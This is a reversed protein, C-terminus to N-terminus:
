LRGAAALDQEAEKRSAPGIKPQVGRLYLADVMKSYELGAIAAAKGLSVKDQRYLEVALELNSPKHSAVFQRVAERILESLNGFAGADVLMQADRRVMEPLHIYTSEGM